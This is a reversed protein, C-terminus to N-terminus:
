GGHKAVMVAGTAQNAMLPAGAEENVMVGSLKCKHGGSKTEELITISIECDQHQSARFTHIGLESHHVPWHGNIVTPDCTCGADCAVRAMGMNEYSRLFSISVANAVAGAGSGGETGDGGGSGPDLSSSPPPGTPRLVSTTDVRLRLVAGTTNAVYGWKDQHGRKAENVWAWGESSTVVSAFREGM